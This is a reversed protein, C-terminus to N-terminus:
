LIWQFHYFWRGYSGSPSQITKTPQGEVCFWGQLVNGLFANPCTIGITIFQGVGGGAHIRVLQWLGM